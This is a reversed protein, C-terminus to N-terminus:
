MCLSLAKIFLLSAPARKLKALSAHGSHDIPRARQPHAAPLRSSLFVGSKTQRGPDKTIKCRSFLHLFFTVGAMPFPLVYVDRRLPPVPLQTELTSVFFGTAPRHSFNKSNPNTTFIRDDCLFQKLCQINKTRETKILTAQSPRKSTNKYIYM